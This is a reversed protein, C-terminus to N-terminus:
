PESSLIDSLVGAVVRGPYVIWDHEDWEGEDEFSPVLYVFKETIM